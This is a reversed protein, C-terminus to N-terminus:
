PMLPQTTPRPLSAHSRSIERGIEWVWWLLPIAMLNTKDFGFWLVLWLPSILVPLVPLILAFKRQPGRTPLDVCYDAILALPLVLLSLDHVNTHWGTLEAVVM